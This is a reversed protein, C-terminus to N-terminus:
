GASTCRLCCARPQGGGDDGGAPAPDAPVLRDAQRVDSAARRLRAGGRLLGPGRGGCRVPDRLPGRQPVVAAGEDRRRRPPRGRRARARRRADARFHGIGAAVAEPPHRQHHLRAHRHSRHLRAGRRRDDAWVVALDAIGGNTIWMKTGNLVWDGGDRRPWPACRRSPRERRRARHARLLRDGGRGGHRPLWESSRSRRGTPTSPSCRCRARSAARVVADGLRRYELETCALGYAVIRPAPAATATWTCGSAPRPGGDGQGAGQPLHGGRVVRRRRAPGPRRRIRRVTDRILREEDDLLADIDLFDKPDCRRPKVPRKAMPVNEASRRGADASVGLSPVEPPAASCGVANGSPPRGGSGTACGPEGTGVGPVRGCGPLGPLDQDGDDTDDDRRLLVARTPAGAPRRVGGLPARRGPGIRAPGHATTPDEHGEDGTCHTPDLVVPPWGFPERPPPARVGAVPGATDDPPASASPVLLARQEVEGVVGVDFRAPKGVTAGAAVNAKM